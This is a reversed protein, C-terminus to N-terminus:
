DELRAGFYEGNSLRILHPANIAKHEEWFSNQIEGVLVGPPIERLFATRFGKVSLLEGTFPDNGTFTLTSFVRARIYNETTTVAIVVDNSSYEKNSKPMITDGRHDLHLFPQIKGGNM